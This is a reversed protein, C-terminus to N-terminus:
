KAVRESKGGPPPQVVREERRKVLGGGGGDAYVKGKATLTWDCQPGTGLISKKESLHYQNCCPTTLNQTMASNAHTFKRGDFIM